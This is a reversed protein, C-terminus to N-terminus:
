SRASNSRWPILAPTVGADVSSAPRASSSTMAANLERSSDVRRTLVNTLANTAVSAKSVAATASRDRSDASAAPTAESCVRSLPHIAAHPASASARVEASASLCSLQSRRQLSREAWSILSRSSSRSAAM